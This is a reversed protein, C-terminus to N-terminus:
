MFAYFITVNNHKMYLIFNMLHQKPRLKCSKGLVILMERYREVVVNPKM